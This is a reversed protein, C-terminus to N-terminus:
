QLRFLCLRSCGPSCARFARASHLRVSRTQAPGSCFCRPLLSSPHPLPRSIVVLWAGSLTRWPLSVRLALKLSALTTALLHLLRFSMHGLGTAPTPNMFRVARLFSGDTIEPPFPRDSDDMSLVLTDSSPYLSALAAQM